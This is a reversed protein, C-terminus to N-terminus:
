ILQDFHQRHTQTCTRINVLASYITVAACLSKYDQMCLVVLLDQDFALVLDTQGVKCTLIGFVDM